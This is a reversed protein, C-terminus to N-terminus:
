GSDRTMELRTSLISFETSQTHGLLKGIIPLSMGLTAGVSAYSHRLDHLRVDDLGAKARIRYWQHHIHVLHTGPKHGVIVYPNDPLREISRILELAAASLFITKAGTKSEQLRICSREFDIADWRLELIESLRAGTVILLRIANIISPFVGQMREEEVLVNGLRAFEQLSLFRERSAIRYRDIHRVPNSGDPRWGWQEALNFMKSLVALTDNATKPISRMTYHLRTVDARTIAAVPKAGLAPLIHLHIKFRDFRVSSPKKKVESHEQLYRETLNRITPAQRMAIDEAVPDEGAYIRGFYQIAKTRAQETTIKGHIGITKYRKVRQKTRYRVFYAKRGSPWVRLGFEPLESDWEIYDRNADPSLNDVLRKTLKPM